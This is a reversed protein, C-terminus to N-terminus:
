YKKQSCDLAARLDVVSSCMYCFGWPQQVTRNAVKDLCDKCYYCCANPLGDVTSHIEHEEVPLLAGCKPNVCNEVLGESLLDERSLLPPSCIVCSCDPQGPLHPDGPLRSWFPSDDGWLQFNGPILNFSPNSCHREMPHDMLDLIEYDDDGIGYCPSAPEQSPGRPEWDDPTPTYDPDITRAGEESYSYIPTTPEKTDELDLCVPKRCPSAQDQKKNYKTVTM